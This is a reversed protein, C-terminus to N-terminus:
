AGEAVCVVYVMEKVVGVYAGISYTAVGCNQKLTLVLFM